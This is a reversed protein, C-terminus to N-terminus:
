YVNIKKMNNRGLLDLGSVMGVDEDCSSCCFNHLVNSQSKSEERGIAWGVWAM